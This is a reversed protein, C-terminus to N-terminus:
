IKSIIFEQANMRYGGVIPKLNHKECWDNVAERVEMRNGNNYMKKDYDHGCIFGGKKIKPYWCELDKYVNEYNHGADIYVWDFYNNSFDKSANESSKRVIYCNTYHGVNRLTNNYELDCTEENKHYKQPIKYNKWYPEWPDIAFIKEPKCYELILKTHDGNAVGLEACIANKKMQKYIPNM